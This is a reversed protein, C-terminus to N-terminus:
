QAIQIEPASQAVAKMHIAMIIAYVNVFQMEMKLAADHMTVVLHRSASM